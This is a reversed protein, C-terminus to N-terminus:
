IQSIRTLCNRRTIDELKQMKTTLVKLLEKEDETLNWEGLEIDIDSPNINTFIESYRQLMMFVSSWRTEQDLIAQNVSILELIGRNNSTRLKKVCERIKEILTANDIEELDVLISVQRRINSAL